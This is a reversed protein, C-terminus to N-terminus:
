PSSMGGNPRSDLKVNEFPRAPRCSSKNDTHLMTLEAKRVCSLAMLLAAAAEALEISLQQSGGSEAEEDVEDSSDSEHDAEAEADRLMDGDDIISRENLMSFSKVSRVALEPPGVTIM